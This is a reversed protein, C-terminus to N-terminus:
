YIDENHVLPVVIHKIAIDLSLLTYTYVSNTFNTMGNLPDPIICLLM